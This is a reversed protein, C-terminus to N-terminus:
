PMKPKFLALAAGTPDLFISFWGVNPIEHPGVIVNAGLSKAKETAADIDDVSVYPLWMSPAGPMPHKMMGGGPGSGPKILTYTGTPMPTDELKWDFLQTYFDKAKDVDQTNLELHVFANAM